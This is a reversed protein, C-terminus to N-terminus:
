KTSIVETPQHRIEQQVVYAVGDFCDGRGSVQASIQGLEPIGPAAASRLCPRKWAMPPGPFDAADWIYLWSRNDPVSRALTMYYGDLEAAAGDRPVFIVEGISANTDRAQSQGTSM